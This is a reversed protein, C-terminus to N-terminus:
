VPCSLSASISCLSSKDIGMGKGPKRWWIVELPISLHVYRSRGVSRVFSRVVKKAGFFVVCHGRVPRSGPGNTGFNLAIAM